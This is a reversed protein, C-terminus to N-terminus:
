RNDYFVNIPHGAGVVLREAFVTQGVFAIRQGNLTVECKTKSVEFPLCQAESLKCFLPMVYQTATRQTECVVVCDNPIELVTEIVRQLMRTTRGSCVNPDPGGEAIYKKYQEENEKTRMRCMCKM